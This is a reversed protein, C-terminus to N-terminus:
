AQKRVLITFEYLDYDHLLAVNQSFNKKCYDFLRLPDSYYLYDRQKHQDSYTTLCNFAFGKIAMEDMHHLARIQFESWKLDSIKNRVNFIGSAIIYDSRSPIKETCHFSASKNLQKAYEIMKPCLDIGLYNFTDYRECLYSYLAGYGCGYDVVSFDEATTVLALLQNFRIQQSEAGNWDAGQPTPGFECIKQNYYESVTSLIQEM